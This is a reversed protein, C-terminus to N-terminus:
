QAKPAEKRAINGLRSRDNTVHEVLRMARGRVPPPLHVSLMRAAAGMQSLPPPPDWTFM